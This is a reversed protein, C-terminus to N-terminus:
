DRFLQGRLATVFQGADGKTWPLGTSSRHDGGATNILITPSGWVSLIGLLLIPLALFLLAPSESAIGLLILGTVILVSGWIPHRSTELRVSTIHRLPLDEQKGGSFWGKKTFYQVRRDTVTGFQTKVIEQEMTVSM